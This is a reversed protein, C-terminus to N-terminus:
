NFKMTISWRVLIIGWQHVNSHTERLRHRLKGLFETAPGFGRWIVRFTRFFACSVFKVNYVAPALTVKPGAGSNM